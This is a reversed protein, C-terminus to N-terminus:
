ILRDRKNFCFVRVNRHIFSKKLLLNHVVPSSSSSSGSGPWFPVSGCCQRYCCTKSNESGCCQYIMRKSGSSILQRASGWCATRRPWSVARRRRRSRRMSRCSQIRLPLSGNFMKRSEFFLGLELKCLM